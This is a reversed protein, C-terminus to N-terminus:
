GPTAVPSDNRVEPSDIWTGIAQSQHTKWKIEKIGLNSNSLRPSREYDTEVIPRQLEYLDRGSDGIKVLELGNNYVSIQFTHTCDVGYIRLDCFAYPGRTVAGGLTGRKVTMEERELYM